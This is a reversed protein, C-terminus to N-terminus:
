FSVRKLKNMNRKKYEKEIQKALEEDNKWSNILSLIKNKDKKGTIRMITESFSGGNKIRKLQNYAEDSLSIIKTMNYIYAYM